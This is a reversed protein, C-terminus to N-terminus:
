AQTRAQLSGALISAAAIVAPVALALFISEFGWGLSLLVGGISSGLISGLRGVGLMWSVGTARAMTPYCGPAYANLGTQAGSLCFGTALIALVIWASNLGSSGLVVLAVGGLLYSASIVRSPKIRDMAFGVVIAGVTGGLQFMATLTSARDISIGADKMMTPLWSTTLYIVLLGMFYTLWLSFTKLAYGQSFLVGLPQKASVPAEQSVFVQYSDLKVQCVRSLLPRVREAPAGKGVLYRASEPLLFFMFPLLLLPMLGGFTLVAQWGFRPTLWAAAFGIAASGLNFGTFMTAIVSSRIREPIYESILTTTNPMAAGLALGTVFRLAAMSQPTTAHATALTALGFGLVSALLVKRRGFWDASSGALLAGVALGIPAAGMVVGFAPRSIHWEGLISPAVFGMIAVDMGDVAVILFCLVVLGWQFASMKRANIFARVDLVEAQNM